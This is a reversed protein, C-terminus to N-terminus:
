SIPIDSGAVNAPCHVDLRSIKGALDFWFDVESGIPILTDFCEDLKGAEVERHDVPDVLCVLLKGTCTVLRKYSGDLLYLSYENYSIGNYEKPTKTIRILKM